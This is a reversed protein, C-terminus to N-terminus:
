KCNKLCQGYFEKAKGLCIAQAAKGYGAKAVLCEAEDRELQADCEKRCEEAGDKCILYGIGVGIATGIVAGAVTGPGPLVFTGAGAGVATLPNLGDPDSYRLPNQKAYAFGNLGGALGIPDSQIYRGTEPNYDRFYNYSTNTEKDAYQGPFRLNLTFKTGDGDPDEEVPSMGFPETLPSNRWVVKKTEDTVLRPTDLHDTHLFYLKPNQQAAALVTLQRAASTKTAGQGDTAKATLTYTGAPPTVWAISYPKTTDSGILTSGQYFEVKALTTGSSPTGNAYFAVQTIPANSEVGSASATVTLSAPALYKASNYPTSLSVTPAASATTPFTLSFLLGACFVVGHRLVNKLPKPTPTM